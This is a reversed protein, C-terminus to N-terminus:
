FQWYVGATSPGTQGSQGGTPQSTQGTQGTQGGVPKGAAAVVFACQQSTTQGAANIVMVTFTRTQGDAIGATVCATNIAGATVPGSTLITDAATGTRVLVLATGSQDSTFRLCVQAGSAATTGCAVTAGNVLLGATLVPAAKGSVGGVTGGTKGAVPAVVFTCPQSTTQGTANTVMVTFTRTQGDAVGATVCVTNIVGATVPGSTLVTDAATGRRVLIVATGAQDSIFQLCVQSGSAVIAGCAVATKSVLLRTTLIPAAQGSVGAVTQGTQGTQGGVPKAAAAVVFACQQSTTQGTANTVMVTFTRTQGDAPGATVCATNLAGATVPGSTLVTDAATGTRILVLATGSQDSTFRLCVQAGSAVTIGCAAAAGNV